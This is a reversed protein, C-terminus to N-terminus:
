RRTPRPPPPFSECSFTRWFKYFEMLEGRKLGGPRSLFLFALQKNLGGHYLDPSAHNILYEVEDRVQPRFRHRNFVLDILFM